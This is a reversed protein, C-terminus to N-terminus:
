MKTVMNGVVSRKQLWKCRKQTSAICYGDFIPLFFQFHVSLSGSLSFIAVLTRKQLWNKKYGLRKKQESEATKTVV